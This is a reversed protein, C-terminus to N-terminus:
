QMALWRCFRVGLPPWCFKNVCHLEIEEAMALQRTFREVLIFAFAKLWLDLQSVVALADRLAISSSISHLSVPLVYFRLMFTNSAILSSARGSEKDIIFKPSCLFEIFSRKIMEEHIKRSNRTNESAKHKTSVRTAEEKWGGVGGRVRGSVRHKHWFYPALCYCLPIWDLIKDRETNQISLNWFSVILRYLLCYYHAM